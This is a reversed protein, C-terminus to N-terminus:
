AADSIESASTDREPNLWGPGASQRNRTKGSWREPKQARAKAYVMARNALTESDQGGQRLNHTM